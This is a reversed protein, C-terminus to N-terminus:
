EEEEEEGTVKQFLLAKGDDMLVSVSAASSLCHRVGVAFKKLDDSEVGNKNLWTCIAPATKCIEAEMQIGSCRVWNKPAPPEPTKEIEVPASEETPKSPPESLEPNPKKEEETGNLFTPWIQMYNCQLAAIQQLAPTSWHPNTKAGIEKLFNELVARSIGAFDSTLLRRM